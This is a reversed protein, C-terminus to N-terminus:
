PSPRTLPPAEPPFSNVDIRSIAHVRNGAYRVQYLEGPMTINGSLVEDKVVFIVHSNPKAEIHGIWTFRNPQQVELRDLVATFCVDDFLNLPVRNISSKAHIRATELLLGFRIGAFRARLLTPADPRQVYGRKPTDTFLGEPCTVGSSASALYPVGGIFNRVGVIARTQDVCNYSKQYRSLSTYSHEDSGPGCVALNDVSPAFPISAVVATPGLVLVDLLVLLTIRKSWSIM